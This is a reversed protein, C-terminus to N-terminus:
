LIENGAGFKDDLVVYGHLNEAEPNCKESFLQFGDLICQTETIRMDLNQPKNDIDGSINLKM